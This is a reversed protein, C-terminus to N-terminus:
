PRYKKAQTQSRSGYANTRNKVATNMAIPYRQVMRWHFGWIPLGVIALSIGIALGSRSPSLVDGGFLGELVYREIQVLGNAAVMLAVFSVAYFYLRRVTGIGPDVPELPAQRRRWQVIAYVIAGIIAIPFLTGTLLGFVMEAM